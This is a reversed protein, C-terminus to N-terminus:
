TKLSSKSFNVRNRLSNKLIKRQRTQILDKNNIEEQIKSVINNSINSNIIKNSAGVLTHIKSNTRLIMKVKGLLMMGQVDSKMVLSKILPLLIKLSKPTCGM